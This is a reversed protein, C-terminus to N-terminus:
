MEFEAVLEKKSVNRLTVTKQIVRQNPRGYNRYIALYVKNTVQTRNQGSSFYKTKVQYKGSPASKLVYMEPGFGGRIDATIRGGSKTAVNQYSCEEGSPELVHLDVDTQDTNWMMTIVLDSEDPVSFKSLTELRANAFEVANSEARKASIERLLSAYETAVIKRFDAGQNEFKAGLALEFFILAMDAKGIQALCQGIASYTAGEYPRRQATRLLLHYAAEPRQWEMATMAVDRAVVWDGPNSELSSSYQRLTDDPFRSWRPDVERVPKAGTSSDSLSEFLKPRKEDRFKKATLKCDLRSDIADVEIEEMAIKLATPMTFELGPMSELRTIWALLQAKPDDLLEQQTELVSAIADSANKSQVVFLDELPKIDFRQYDAESELMLLSCTQGTVRFNRAYAASLDFVSSGLSELRGVAVQGYLRGATDSALPAPAPISVQQTKDSQKVNLTIAGTPKGRGVVTLWQGPYVWEVRGATMVDTAGEIDISSLQWRRNRHATSAQQIQDSSTVSFVAGGTANALFRLNSIATGNLGTQYAFLSGLGISSFENEILRLNTEGWNAAGDSLLFLDPQRDDAALWKAEALELIAGHLNTAGELGLQHCDRILQKVNADTNDSYEKRWFRSDVDFFVVAFQKLDQRNNKLTAELLELWVNFKDPQSSLSTDLLFVGRDNTAQEAAPLEARIRTAFLPLKESKTSTLLVPKSDVASLKLTNWAPQDFSFRKQSRGDGVAKDAKWNAVSNDPKDRQENPTNARKAEVKPEGLLELQWKGDQYDAVNLDIKCQGRHDPLDLKYFSGNDTPTLSVDYGIVIRHLKKPILPFVRANFVGAGSWEVLAPDIKRRVTQSYAFAAKERPVMRAEKVNKWADQRALGIHAPLLSVYQDGHVFESQAMPGDPSFDYASQGFAFYYLSSDDPLRIKFNGELQRDRDNYYFYDVLVRARFGDVQVQVQMGTLDLEDKDGVILRSTNDTANVRRWSLPKEIKNPRNQWQGSEVFKEIAAVQARLSTVNPHTPGFRQLAVELQIKAGVLQRDMTASGRGTGMSPDSEGSREDEALRIDLYRNRKGVAKSWEQTDPFVLPLDTIARAAQSPVYGGITPIGIDEWQSVLANGDIKQEPAILSQDPEYEVTWSDTQVSHGRMPDSLDESETSEKYEFFGSPPLMMDGRLASTDLDGIMKVGGGLGTEDNRTANILLMAIAATLAAISCAAVWRTTTFRLHKPVAKSDGSKRLVTEQEPLTRPLESEFALAVSDVTSQIEAVAQAIEPSAEVAERISQEESNSLEGLVFATLKPDNKDYM